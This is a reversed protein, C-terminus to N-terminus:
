PTLKAVRSPLTVTLVGNALTSTWGQGNDHRGDTLSESEMLESGRMQQIQVDYHWQWDEGGPPQSDDVSFSYTGVPLSMKILKVPTEREERRQAFAQWDVKLWAHGKCNKVGLIYQYGSGELHAPFNVCTTGSLKPPGWTSSNSKSKVTGTGSVARMNQPDPVCIAFGVERNANCNDDDQNLTGSQFTFPSSWTAYTAWLRGEVRYSVRPVLTVTLSTSQWPKYTESCGFFAIWRPELVREQLGTIAISLASKDTVRQVMSSPIVISIVHDSRTFGGPKGNVLVIAGAGFNLFNGHVNVVMTEGNAVALSPTWYVVRPIQTRCPLSYSTDYATIDADGITERAQDGTQTTLAIAAEQSRFILERADSMFQREEGDLQTYAVNSRHAFKADIDALVNQINAQLSNGSARVEGGATLTAQQVSTLADNLGQQIEGVTLYGSAAAAGVQGTASRSGSASLILLVGLIPIIRNM